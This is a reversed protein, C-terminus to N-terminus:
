LAIHDTEARSVIAELLRATLNLAAVLASASSSYTEWIEQRKSDSIIMGTVVLKTADQSRITALM